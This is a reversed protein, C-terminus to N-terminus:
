LFWTQKSHPLRFTKLIEPSHQRAAKIPRRRWTPVLMANTIVDNGVGGAVITEVKDYVDNKTPVENSGNWGSGYAEAPVIIDGTFTDGAKNAKLAL